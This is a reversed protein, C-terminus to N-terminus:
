GSFHPPSSKICDLPFVTTKLNVRSLTSLAKSQIYYYIHPQDQGDRTMWRWINKLKKGGPKFIDHLYSTCFFVFYLIKGKRKDWKSLKVLTNDFLTIEWPWEVFVCSLKFTFTGVTSVINHYSLKYNHCLIIRAALPDKTRRPEGPWLLHCCACLVEPVWSIHINYRHIISDMYHDLIALNILNAPLSCHKLKKSLTNRLSFWDHNLEDGLGRSPPYKNTLFNWVSEKFANYYGVWKNYHFIYWTM